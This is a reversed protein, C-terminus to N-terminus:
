TLPVDIIVTTGKQPISDITVRGGLNEIRKQISYLGMSDQPRILSIDFGIGNDEVMLNISDEYHTLSIIAESAHSHKIVNTILEQIIRFITIELSNELRKNMGHEEVEIMLKNIISVKSAFNKVAPLLGEKANVGVNGAHAISRVKQYAEELLDDTKKLLLDQDSEKRDKRAKINQFHLKLTALVSGLNDHLDNAIRQREKEQGEIMADIGLIEQDKLIKELKMSQVEKEKLQIRNKSRQNTYALYSILFLLGVGVLASILWNRNQRLQLNANEKEQTKLEANLKKVELTNRRFDLDFEQFYARRLLFFASDFRKQPTYFWLSSYLNLYYNSRLTDALNIEKRAKVLYDHAVIFENKKAELIMMKMYSHFRKGKLFPYGKAQDIAKKLYKNCNELDKEIEFKVAKEYFIHALVPSKQELHSEFEDLSKALEYYRSDLKGLSRPVKSYLIMKYLTLWVRDIYDEKLSEFHDLQVKYSDSVQAVEFNYYNFFAILSAKLLIPSNLEKALQYAQYFYKYADSKSREYFLNIYGTNLARILFLETDQSDTPKNDSLKFYTREKQGDWYLLEALQIMEFRMLSDPEAIANEKASEFELKSLNLFFSKRNEPKGALLAIPLLM